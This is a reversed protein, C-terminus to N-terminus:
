VLKRRLIFLLECKYLVNMLTFTIKLLSNDIGKRNLDISYWIIMGFM